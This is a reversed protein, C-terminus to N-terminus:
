QETWELTYSGSALEIYREKKLTIADREEAFHNLPTGNLLVDAIPLYVKARTNAPITIMWLAKGDQRQWASTIPGYPSIFNGKASSLGAISPRLIFRHYGNGSQGVQIGLVFRYLWASVAGLSYHNFSNMGNNGGFGDDITFSNWREWITTAGQTVSYLWSPYNTQRLLKYATEDYGYASLAQSIPATGVFGTTLTCGLAETKQHLREAMKFRNQDDAVEFYLPVAYSCQTDNIEGNATLTLGDDNVFRRNWDAKIASFLARYKAEDSKKSLMAAIEAMLKADYAFYATWILDNDTSMDAALWDGLNGIGDALIGDGLYGEELYKMYRCMAEYMEGLLRLDGLQRHIEYPVIIGASGWVIGGFGGGIPAIDAFRGNDAQVDRAAQMYRYYLTRVDAQYLATQAFVQADGMWGMRENRQPCDTPISIFNARQSWLVNEWLRNVMPDSCSFDGTIDTASTLVIGHVDSPKPPHAAGTLEVYRYGHFTFHPFFTEDGGKCIYRDTCAADRLNEMLPLGDLGEYAALKPYCVESYRLVIETGSAEHFTIKPVGVMNQGMDYLFVGPRIERVSKASLTLVPLIPKDIQGILKPETLNVSPWAHFGSTEDKIEGAAIEVAPQWETDDYDATSFGHYAAEKRADVYQGHFFSAYQIAADMSYQWTDPESIHIDKTGDTYELVLKALLAPRDGYYNHNAVSFTQSDSWWGSALVFGIGFRREDETLLGTIDTTQYYMHRDFQSAGPQFWDQSVRKGNIFCEYIGRATAYLTARKLTSKPKLGITRRLLPVSGSSPDKTLIQKSVTLSDFRGPEQATVHFLVAKPARINSVTLYDYHATALKAYFGVDNLLPFTLVDTEGIPNLQRGTHLKLNPAFPLTKLTEDILKGDLYAKATNGLVEVRLTHAAHMNEETIITDAPQAMDCIAASYFPLDARDEKAYGVRYINLRAPLTAIDITYAIYSEGELLYINKYKDSLRPDNAGFVLGAETGEIIRFCSEIAFVGKAKSALGCTRSGIWKAGDWATIRDNLFGTEFFSAATQTEGTECTVFVRVHYRTCPQLAVGAYEVAHSQSDYVVGSDWVSFGAETEVTIRYSKQAIAPAESVMQWSFRPCMCDLGLPQSLYETKLNQVSFYM